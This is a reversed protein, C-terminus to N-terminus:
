IVRKVGQLHKLCHAKALKLFDDVFPTELQEERVAAYLTPWIGVSGASRVEILAQRDYEALVWNPLAALGRGSAV